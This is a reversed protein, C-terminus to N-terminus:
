GEAPAVGVTVRIPRHDPGLDPGVERATTTLDRSHLLHDLPIGALPWLRAPWTAGFGFGQQSNVLEAPGAVLRFGRSWPTANFDGTVVVPGIEGAARAGVAALLEDRQATRASDSPSPPHVAYVAVVNGDLTLQIRLAGGADAPISLREVAVPNRALVTPGFNRGEGIGSSIVYGTQARELADEAVRSSEFLFVVDPDGDLIWGLHPIPDTLQTNFTVIVLRGTTAAAPPTVLFLPAFLAANFLAGLAAITALRPHRLPVLLVAALALALGYQLRFNGLLDFVWWQSRFAGLITGALALIAPVAVVVTAARRM